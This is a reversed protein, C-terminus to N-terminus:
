VLVRASDDARIGAADLAQWATLAALPAAGAQAASWSQPAAALDAAPIAVLEALTHAAAPFRALAFVRDGQAWGTVGDGVDVVTGAVDWGPRDSYRIAGFDHGAARIKVDVPNLGVAAVRILVEGPAAAPVDVDDFTVVTGAAGAATYRAARM